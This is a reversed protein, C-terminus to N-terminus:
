ASGSGVFEVAVGLAKALRRVDAKSLGRDTPIKVARAAGALVKRNVGLLAAARRFSYTPEPLTTGAFGDL